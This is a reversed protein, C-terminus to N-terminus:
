SQGPPVVAMRTTGTTPDTGTNKFTTERPFLLEQEYPKTSFAAINAVHTGIPVTIELLTGPNIKMMDLAVLKSLTASTYTRPVHLDGSRTSWGSHAVRYVTMPQTTKYRTTLADLNRVPRVISEPMLGQNLPESIEAGHQTWREVSAWEDGHLKPELASGEGFRGHDDRPQDPSYRQELKGALRALHFFAALEDSDPGEFEHGHGPLTRAAVRHVPLAALQRVAELSWFSDTDSMVRGMKEHFGRSNPEFVSSVRMGQEAAYRAVELEAATAAGRVERSSGAVGIAVEIPAGLPKFLEFSVAAVPEGQADHAVAVSLRDDGLAQALYELGHIQDKTLNDTQNGHDRKLGASMIDKIREKAVPDGPPFGTEGPVGGILVEVTGGSAFFADARTQIGKLLAPEIPGAPLSGDGEGFRGHDDRAQDPSYRKEVEPLIVM